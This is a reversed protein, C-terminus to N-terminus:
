LERNWTGHHCGVSTAGDPWGSTFCDTCPPEGDQPPDNEPPPGEDDSDDSLDPPDIPAGNPADQGDGGDLASPEPTGDPDDSADPEPKAEAPKPPRTQATKRARPPM